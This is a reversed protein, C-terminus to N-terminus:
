PPPLLPPPSLSLHPLPSPPLLPPSPLLLPPLTPPLPLYFEHEISPELLRLVNHSKNFLPGNNFSVNVPQRPRNPSLGTKRNYLSRVFPHFQKTSSNFAFDTEDVPVPIRKLEEPCFADTAHVVEYAVMQGVSRHVIFELKWSLQRMLLSLTNM